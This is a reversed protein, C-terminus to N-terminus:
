SKELNSYTQIERNIKNQFLYIGGALLPFYGYEANRVIETEMISKIKAQTAFSSLFAPLLDYFSQYVSKTILFGLLGIVVPRVLKREEREFYSALSFLFFRGVSDCRSSHISSDLETQDAECLGLKEILRGTKRKIKEALVFLEEQTPEALRLFRYKEDDLYNFVTLLYLVFICM